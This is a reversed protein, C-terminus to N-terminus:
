NILTAYITASYPHDHAFAPITQEGWLRAAGDDVAEVEKVEGGYLSLVFAAASDRDPAGNLRYTQQAGYRTLHKIRHQM